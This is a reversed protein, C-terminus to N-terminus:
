SSQNQSLHSYIYEGMLSARQEWSNRKAFEIRKKILHDDREQLAQLLQYEFEDIGEAVRVVESLPSRVPVSSVVPRGMALYQYIKNSDTFMCYKNRKYPLLCVDSHSIYSPMEEYKQPGLFHINSLKKLVPLRDAVSGYGKQFIPGVIIISLNKNRIGLERVLDLDSVGEQISGVYLARPHPINRLLFPEPREKLPDFHNTDVGNPIFYVNEYEKKRQEFLTETVCFILNVKDMIEREKEETKRALDANITEYNAFDDICDYCSLREGFNGIFDAAEWFFNVMLLSDRFDFKKIAGQMSQIMFHKNLKDIRSFRSFPVMRFLPLIHLRNNLEQYPCHM